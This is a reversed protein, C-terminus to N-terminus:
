LNQECISEAVPLTAGDLLADYLSQYQTVCSEVSFRSEVVGRGAEGMKKARERDAKIELIAEGLADPNRAPVLLGTKRPM